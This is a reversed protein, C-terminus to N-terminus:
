APFVAFCKSSNFVRSEVWDVIKAGRGLESMAGALCLWSLMEHQGADELDARSLLRWASLDGRELEALRARDAEIDPYLWAHKDTLQARSWSGAAVLSVRWPSAALIRATARGLDFCRGPAPALTEAEGRGRGATTTGMQARPAPSGLANVHFPVVPLPFGARDHDLLLLTDVFARALGRGDRVRFAHSVDFGDELLRRVLHRGGAPHGHYSFATDEAEGWINRRPMGAEPERFPVCSVRDLIFVCFPPLLDERFNEYQDAGWMLVFDPRFAEIERRVSRFADVLRRRHGPAATTGQDSGWEARMAPPWAAADRLGGPIRPSTLTHRLIASMDADPLMASPDHPVGVGQIEGM